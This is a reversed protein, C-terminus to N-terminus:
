GPAGPPEEGPADSTASDSAEAPAESSWWETPVATPLMTVLLALLGGLVLLAAVTGLWQRGEKRRGGGPSRQPQREKEARSPAPEKKGTSPEPVSEDGYKAELLEFYSRAVDVYSLMYFANCSVSLFPRSFSM